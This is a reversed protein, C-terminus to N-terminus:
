ALYLLRKECIGTVHIVVCVCLCLLTTLVSYVMVYMHLIVPLLLNGTYPNSLAYACLNDAQAM